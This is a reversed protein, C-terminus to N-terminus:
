SILETVCGTQGLHQDVDWVVDHTHFEEVPRPVVGVWVYVVPVVIDRPVRVVEVKRETGSKCEGDVEPPPRDRTM